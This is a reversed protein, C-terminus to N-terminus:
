SARRRALRQFVNGRPANGQTTANPSEDALGFLAILEGAVARIGRAIRASPRM